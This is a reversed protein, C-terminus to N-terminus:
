SLYTITYKGSMKHQDIEYTGDEYVKALSDSSKILVFYERAKVFNNDRGWRVSIIKANKPLDLKGSTSSNQKYEINLIKYKPEPDRNFDEQNGGIIEKPDIFGEIM